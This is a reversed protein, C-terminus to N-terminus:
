SSVWYLMTDSNLNSGLDRHGEVSMRIVVSSRARTVVIGRETVCCPSHTLVSVLSPLVCFRDPRQKSNESYIWSLPSFNTILLNEGKEESWTWGFMVFSINTPTSKGAVSFLGSPFQNLPFMQPWIPQNLTWPHFLCDFYVHEFWVSDMVCVETEQHNLASKTIRSQPDNKGLLPKTNVWFPLHFNM